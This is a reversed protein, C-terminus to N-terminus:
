DIDRDVVTCELNRYVPSGTSQLIALLNCRSRRM